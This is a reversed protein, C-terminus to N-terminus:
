GHTAWSQILSEENFLTAAILRAEGSIFEVTMHDWWSSPQSQNDRAAQWFRSVNKM